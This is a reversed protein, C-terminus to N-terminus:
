GEFERLISKIDCDRFFQKDNFAKDDIWYDYSPKNMILTHHKCGWDKLQQATLDSWDRGSTGGRATWYIITAGEDYLRNIKAIREALPYARAYDHNGEEDKPTRCITGDIDVIYLPHKM